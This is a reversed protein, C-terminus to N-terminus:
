RVELHIGETEWRSRVTVTDPHVVSPEAPIFPSARGYGFRGDEDDDRFASFRYRGPLLDPWVYPGQRRVTLHAACGEGGVPRAALRFPGGLSGTADVITGSVAGFMRKELVSFRFAVDGELPNGARDSVASGLGLLAYSTGERWGGAPSFTLTIPDTWLFEGAPIQTSDSAAWFTSDLPVSRMAEDLVIELAQNPRVDREDSSPTLSVVKPRTTDPASGGSFSAAGREESIANGSSDTVGEVTVRYAADSTGEDTLLHLKAPDKSDRYREIIRIQSAHLHIGIKATDACIPEDFRLTVHVNDAARASLLSPGTTDRLALHLDGSRVSESSDSLVLDGSPVALPDKGVAYEGDRNRDQFAFLRYAGESLYRFRYRGDQAAQTAYEPATRAPDPVDRKRLEYAWVYIGDLRAGPGIVRGRIEGRNMSAGTSFAFTYSSGLVNRHRDRATAGVTVVCTQNPRLREPLLVTVEDGRWRFRLEGSPNSSVFLASEVTRRDMRESFRIRIDTDPAVGTSDSPPFTRVVEPAIKDTPGGPPVGRKACGSALVSLCLLFVLARALREGRLCSSM